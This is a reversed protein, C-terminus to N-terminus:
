AARRLGDCGEADRQAQGLFPVALAGLVQGNM